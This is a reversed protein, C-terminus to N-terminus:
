QLSTSTLIETLIENKYFDSIDWLHTSPKMNRKEVFKYFLNFVPYEEKGRFSDIWGEFSAVNNFNNYSETARSVLDRIKAEDM